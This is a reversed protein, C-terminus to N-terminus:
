VYKILERINKITYLKECCKQPTENTIYFHYMGMNHAGIIDRHHADGVMASNYPKAGITNLAYEFIIPSPKIEGIVGSDAIVEFYKRIGLSELVSELNGYFNSIIGLKINKSLLYKLLPINQNINKKSYDIFENAIKQVLKEDNVKLYDLVDKVQLLVTENFGLNKLRHRVALNDDSNFFAKSFDDYSIDFGNKLYIPYFRKRWCVGDDDLTGGFDFFIFKIDM